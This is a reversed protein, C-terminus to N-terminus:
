QLRWPMRLQRGALEQWTQWDAGDVGTILGAPAEASVLSDWLKRLNLAWLQSNFTLYLPDGLHAKFRMAAYFEQPCISM